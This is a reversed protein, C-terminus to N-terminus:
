LRLRRKKYDMKDFSGDNRLSSKVHEEKESETSMKYEFCMAFRWLGAYISPKHRENKNLRLLNSRANQIFQM